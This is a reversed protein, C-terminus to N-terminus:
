PELTLSGLFRGAVVDFDSPPRARQPRVTLRYVRRGVVLARAWLDFDRGSAEWRLRVEVGPHGAVEIPRDELVRMGPHANGSLFVERLAEPEVEPGGEGSEVYHVRFSSGDASAEASYNLLQAGEGGRVSERPEGLLEM